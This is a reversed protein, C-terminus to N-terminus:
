APAAAKVAEIKINKGAVVLLQDGAELRTAGRPHLVQRGRIVSRRGDRSVDGVYHPPYAKFGEPGAGGRM